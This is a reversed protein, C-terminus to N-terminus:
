FGTGLSGGAGRQLEPREALGQHEGSTREM